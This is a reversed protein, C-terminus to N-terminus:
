GGGGLFFFHQAMTIAFIFFSPGFHFDHPSFGFTARYKGVAPNDPIEKHFSQTIVTVFYMGDDTYPSKDTFYDCFLHSSLSFPRVDCM